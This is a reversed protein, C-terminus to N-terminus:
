GKGNRRKNIQLGALAAVAVAVALTVAYPVWSLSGRLHSGTETQLARLTALLLLLLGIALCISGAVGYAVFRGLGKIPEITEQKAYAVILEWLETVQTTLSKDSKDGDGIYPAVRTETV